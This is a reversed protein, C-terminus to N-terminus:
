VKAGKRSIALDTKEQALFSNVDVPRAPSDELIKLLSSYRYLKLQIRTWVQKIHEEGKEGWGANSIFRAIEEM